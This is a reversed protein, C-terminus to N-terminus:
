GDFVIGLVLESAFEGDDLGFLGLAAGVILGGRYIVM